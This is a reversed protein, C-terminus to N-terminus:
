QPGVKNGWSPDAVARAGAHSPACGRWWKTKQGADRHMKDRTWRPCASGAIVRILPPSPWAAVRGLGDSEEAQGPDEHKGRHTSIQHRGITNSSANSSPSRPVAGAQLTYPTCSDPGSLQLSQHEETVTTSRQKGHNIAALPGAIRHSGNDNSASKESTLRESGPLGSARLEGIADPEGRITVTVGDKRVYGLDALAKHRRLAATALDVLM